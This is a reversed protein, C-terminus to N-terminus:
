GQVLLLYKKRGIKPTVKALFVRRHLLGSETQTNNYEDVLNNLYGLYSNSDNAAM